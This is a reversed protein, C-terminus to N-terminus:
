RHSSESIFPYMKTLTEKAIDKAVFASESNHILRIKM